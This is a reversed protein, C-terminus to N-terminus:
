AFCKRNNLSKLGNIIEPKDVTNFTISERCHQNILDGLITIYITDSCARSVHFYQDDVEAQFYGTIAIAHIM